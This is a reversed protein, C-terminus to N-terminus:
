FCLTFLLVTHTHNKVEHAEIVHGNRFNAVTYAWVPKALFETMLTPVNTVIFKYAALAQNLGQGQCWIDQVSTKM